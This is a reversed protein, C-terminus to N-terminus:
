TLEAGDWSGLTQAPKCARGAYKRSRCKEQDYISIGIGNAELIASISFGEAMALVIKLVGKV